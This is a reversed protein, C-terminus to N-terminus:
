EPAGEGIWTRFLAQDDASLPGAPPMSQDVLIENQVKSIFSTVEAFTSLTVGGKPKALSDDHCKLCQPVFVQDRVMAYTVVPPPSVPSPSPSPSPEPSPSIEPSPSPSPSPSPIAVAIDNEPAGADIWQEILAQESDPLPGTPPMSKDVVAETKIKDVVAVALAYSELNVGKKALANGHCGICNVQFVATKLSNYGMVRGPIPAAIRPTSDNGSGPAQKDIKFGCAAVTMLSSATITM